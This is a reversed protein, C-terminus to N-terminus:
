PHFLLPVPPLSYYFSPYSCCMPFIFLFFSSHFFLLSPPSLLFSFFHFPHLSYYSLFSFSFFSLFLLFPYLLSPVTLLFVLLDFVRLSNGQSCKKLTQIHYCFLPTLCLYTCLCGHPCTPVQMNVGSCCRCCVMRIDVLIVCGMFLGLIIPTAYCNRLSISCGTM